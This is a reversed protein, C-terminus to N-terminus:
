LHSALTPTLLIDYREFFEGIQRAILQALNLSRSLEPARCQRGLLGLAWTSPEFDRFEAKRNLQVQAEEIAARAEVCVITLFAKAFANGDIQPAAEAMEHGLDM